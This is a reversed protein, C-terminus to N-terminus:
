SVWFLLEFPVGALRLKGALWSQGFEAYFGVGAGVLAGPISIMAVFVEDVEPPIGILWLILGAQVAAGLCIWAMLAFGFSHKLRERLLM